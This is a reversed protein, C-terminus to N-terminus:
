STDRNSAEVTLKTWLRTYDSLSEVTTPQDAASMGKLVRVFLTCKLQVQPNTSPKEYRKLLKVGVYGAMYRIASKERVTLPAVDSATNELQEVADAKNKLMKKFVRDVLLQLTLHSEVRCPEPAKLETMFSSWVRNLAVSNRVEHFSSWVCGQAASPLRRKEGAVLCAHLRTILHMAFNTVCVKECMEEIHCLLEHVKKGRPSRQVIPERKLASVCSIFLTSCGSM